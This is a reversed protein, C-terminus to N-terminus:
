NTYFVFLLFFFLFNIPTIKTDFKPKVKLIYHRPQSQLPFKLFNLFLIVSISNVNINSKSKLKPKM